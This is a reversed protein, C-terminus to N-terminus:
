LPSRSTPPQPPRSKKPPFTAGESPLSRLGASRSQNDFWGSDADAATPRPPAPPPSDALTTVWMARAAAQRDRWPAERVLDLGDGHARPPRVFELRQSLAALRAAAPAPCVDLYPWPVGPVAEIVAQGPSPLVDAFRRMPGAESPSPPMATEMPHPDAPEPAPDAPPSPQPADPPEPDDVHVDFAVIPRGLLAQLAARGDPIEPSILARSPCKQGELKYAVLVPRYIATEALLDRIASFAMKGLDERARRESPWLGNFLRSFEHRSLLLIGRSLRYAEVLRNGYIRRGKGARGNDVRGTAEHVLGQRTVVRDVTLNLALAHCRQGSEVRLADGTM